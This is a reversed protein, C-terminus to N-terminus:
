IGVSSHRCKTSTRRPQLRLGAPILGEITGLADDTFRMTVERRVFRAIGGVGRLRVAQPDSESDHARYGPWVRDADNPHITTFDAGTDILFNM